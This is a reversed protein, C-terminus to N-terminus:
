VEEKETGVTLMLLLLSLVVEIRAVSSRDEEDCSILLALIGSLLHATDKLETVVGPGGERKSEKKSGEEEEKEEVEPQEKEEEENAGEDAGTSGKSGNM